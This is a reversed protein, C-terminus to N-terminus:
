KNVDSITYHSPNSNIIPVADNTVESPTIKNWTKNPKHNRLVYKNTCESDTYFTIIKDTSDKYYGNAYISRDFTPNKRIVIEGTPTKVLRMREKTQTQPIPNCFTELLTDEVVWNNGEGEKKESFTPKNMSWIEDTYKFYNGNGENTIKYENDEVSVKQLPVGKYIKKYHKENSQHTCNQDTYTIVNKDKNIFLNKSRNCDKKKIDSCQNFSNNLEITKNTNNSTVRLPLCGNNNKVRTLYIKRNSSRGEQVSLIYNHNENKKIIHSLDNGM